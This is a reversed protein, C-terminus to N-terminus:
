CRCQDSRFSASSLLLMTAGGVDYQPHSLGSTAPRLISLPLHLSKLNLHTSSPSCSVYNSVALQIDPRRELTYEDLVNTEFRLLYGLCLYYATIIFPM